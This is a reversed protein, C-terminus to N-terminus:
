NIKSIIKWKTPLCGGFENDEDGIKPANCIQEREDFEPCVISHLFNGHYKLIAESSSFRNNLRPCQYTTITYEDGMKSNVEQLM